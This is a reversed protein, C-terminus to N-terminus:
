AGHYKIQNVSRFESGRVLVLELFGIPKRAFKMSIEHDVLLLILNYHCLSPYVCFSLLDFVLVPAMLM